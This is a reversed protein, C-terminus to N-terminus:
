LGAKLLLVEMETINQVGRPISLVREGVNLVAAMNLILFTGAFLLLFDIDISMFSPLPTTAMLLTWKKQVRLKLSAFDHTKM